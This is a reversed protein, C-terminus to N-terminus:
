RINYYFIRRYDTFCVTLEDLNKKKEHKRENQRKPPKFIKM